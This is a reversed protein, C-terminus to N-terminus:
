KGGGAGGNGGIGVMACPADAQVFEGDGGALGPGAPDVVDAGNACNACGVCEACSGPPAAETTMFLSLATTRLLWPRFLRDTVKGM